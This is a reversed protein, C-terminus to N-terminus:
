EDTVTTGICAAARKQQTGLLGELHKFLIRGDTEQGCDRVMAHTKDIAQQLREDSMLYKM